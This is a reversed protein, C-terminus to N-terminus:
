KYSGLVKHPSPPKVWITVKANNESDQAEKLQSRRIYTGFVQMNGNFVQNFAEWPCVFQHWSPKTKTKKKGPLL